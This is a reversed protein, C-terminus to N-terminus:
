LDLRREREEIIKYTMSLSYHIEHSLRVRTKRNIYKGILVKRHVAKELGSIRILIDIKRNYRNEVLENIRESLVDVNQKENRITKRLEAIERDYQMLNELRQRNTM